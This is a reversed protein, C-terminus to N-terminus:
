HKRIRKVLNKIDIKLTRARKALLSKASAADWRLTGYRIIKGGRNIKSVYAVIEEPPCQESVRYNGDGRFKLENGKIKRLRHLVCTGRHEFLLVMGREPRMGGLAELEVIDKGDRLFPRMSGGKVRLSVSGGEAVIHKVDEFLVTNEIIKVSKHSERREM